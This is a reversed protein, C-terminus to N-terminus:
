VLITSNSPITVMTQVLSGLGQSTSLTEISSANSFMEIMRRAALTMTTGTAPPWIILFIKWMIVAESTDTLWDKRTTDGADHIIVELGSQSKLQPLNQGPTLIAISDVQTGGEVFTYTGVYSSFTADGTLTDFIVEPSSAFSQAV